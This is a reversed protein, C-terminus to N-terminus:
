ESATVKMRMLHFKIVMGEWLMRNHGLLAFMCIQRLKIAWSQKGEAWGLDWDWELSWGGEGFTHFCFDTWEAKSLQKTNKLQTLACRFRFEQKERNTEEIESIGFCNKQM